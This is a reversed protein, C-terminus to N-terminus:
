RGFVPGRVSTSDPALVFVFEAAEFNPVHPQLTRRRLVMITTQEHQGDRGLQEPILDLPVHGFDLSDNM